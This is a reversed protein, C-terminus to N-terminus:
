DGHVFILVEAHDLLFLAENTFLFDLTKGTATVYAM